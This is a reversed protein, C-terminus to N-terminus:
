SGFWKKKEICTVLVVPIKDRSNANSGEREMANENEIEPRDKKKKFYCRRGIKMALWVLRPPPAQQDPTGSSTSPAQSRSM